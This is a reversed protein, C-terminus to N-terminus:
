LFRPPPKMTTEIKKLKWGLKPFIELKVWIKWIPQFLWGSIPTPSGPTMPKSGRSGFALCHHTISYQFPNLSPAEANSQLSTPFKKGLLFQVKKKTNKPPHSTQNNKKEMSIQNDNYIYKYPNYPKNELCGFHKKKAFVHKPSNCVNTRYINPKTKSLIADNTDGLFVHKQPKPASKLQSLFVICTSRSAM